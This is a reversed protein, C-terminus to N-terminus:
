DDEYKLEEPLEIGNLECLRNLMLEYECTLDCVMDNLEALDNLCLKIETECEQLAARLKKAETVTPFQLLIGM